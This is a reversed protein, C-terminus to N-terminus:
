SKSLLACLAPALLKAAYQNIHEKDIYAQTETGPLFMNCTTESCLHQAVDFVQVEPHSSAFRKAVLRRPTQLVEEKNISCDSGQQLCFAPLQPLRAGDYVLVMKAGASNVVRFLEDLDTQLRSTPASQIFSKSYFVFDGQRLQGQLHALFSPTVFSTAAGFQAFYIISMSTAEKLATRRALGGSSFHGQRGRSAAPM